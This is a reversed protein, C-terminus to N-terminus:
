AKTQIRLLSVQSGYAPSGIGNNNNGEAGSVSQASSRRGSSGAVDNNADNALSATSPSRTVAASPSLLERRDLYKKASALERTLEKQSAAFRRKLVSVENAADTAQFPFM